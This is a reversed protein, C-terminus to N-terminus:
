PRVNNLQSAVTVRQKSLLERFYRFIFIEFNGFPIFDAFRRVGVLKLGLIKGANVTFYYYDTRTAFAFLVESAIM